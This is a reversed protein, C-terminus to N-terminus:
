GIVTEYLLIGFAYYDVEYGYGKQLDTFFEPAMAHLTGCFSHTRSVSKIVINDSSEGKKKSKRQMDLILSNLEVM